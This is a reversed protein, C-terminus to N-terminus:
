FKWWKKKKSKEKEIGVEDNRKKFSFAIRQYPVKIDFCLETGDDLKLVDMIIEGDNILSQGVDEKNLHYRVFDREDSIRTVIYPLDKTGDGTKELCEFITQSMFMEIQMGKEDNLEKYAFYKYIHASPSLLININLYMIVEQFEGKNLLTQINEIDKSYPDYEPDNIVIERCKLFTEKIPDTLFEFVKEYTKM